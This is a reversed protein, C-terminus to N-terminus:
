QSFFEHADLAVFRLPWPNDELAKNRRVTHNIGSLMDRLEEPNMLAGVEGARDASPKRPGVIKEWRRAVRLEGELANLSNLRTVCMMLISTFIAATPIQPRKRADHLAPLRASWDFVKELYACFRAMM